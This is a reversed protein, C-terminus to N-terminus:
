TQISFNACLVYNFYIVLKKNEESWFEHPKTIIEGNYPIRIYGEKYKIYTGAVSLSSQSRSM